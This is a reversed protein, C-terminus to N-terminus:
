QTMKTTKHHLLCYISYKSNSITSSGFSVPMGNNWTNSSSARGPTGSTFRIGPNNQFIWSLWVKQDTSVPVNSTLQITQWGAASNITTSASVGLRTSPYGGQDTYVGLILNGTGGNHYISISKIEGTETFTVPMAMLNALNSASSYVETNGISFVPM